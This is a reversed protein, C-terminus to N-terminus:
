WHLMQAGAEGSAGVEEPDPGGWGGARNTGIM